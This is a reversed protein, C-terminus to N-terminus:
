PCSKLSPDPERPTKVGESQTHRVGGTLDTRETIVRVSTEGPGKRGTEGVRRGEDGRVLSDSDSGGRFPEGM